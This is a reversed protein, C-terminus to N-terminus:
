DEYIKHTFLAAKFDDESWSHNKFVWDHALASILVPMIMPDKQMVDLYHKKFLDFAYDNSEIVLKVITEKNLGDPAKAAPQEMKIGLNFLEMQVAPDQM